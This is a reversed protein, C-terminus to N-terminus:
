RISRRTSCVAMPVTPRATRAVEALVAAAAVAASCAGGRAVPRNFMYASDFHKKCRYDWHQLVYDKCQTATQWVVSALLQTRKLFLLYQFNTKADTMGGTACICSSSKTWLREGSPLTVVWSYESASWFRWPKGNTTSWIPVNSFAWWSHSHSLKWYCLLLCTTMKAVGKLCQWMGDAWVLLVVVCSSANDDTIAGSHSSHNGQLLLFIFLNGSKNREVCKM